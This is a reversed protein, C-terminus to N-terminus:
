KLINRALKKIKYQQKALDLAMKSKRDAVRLNMFMEESLANLEAERELKSMKLKPQQGILYNVVAGAFAPHEVWSAEIFHCSDAIYEGTNKDIAGILEACKYNKGDVNIYQGLHNELHECNKDDDGIVKGCISCTAYNCCCGMSLTTIQGSQIKEVLDEHKRSTCTLLDVYFVDAEKGNKGKYTVPRLVADLIKGKSLAPVQIHDRYVDGGVFTKYCYTIVENTWANGNANVLEDCPQVIRYGNDEVQCSALISVHAFLYDQRNFKKWDVNLERYATRINGRSCSLINKWDNQPNDLIHAIPAFIQGKKM